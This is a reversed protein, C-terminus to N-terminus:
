ISIALIASKGKQKSSDMEKLLNESDKSIQSVSQKTRDKELQHHELEKNCMLSEFELNRFEEEGLEREKKVSEFGERLNEIENKLKKIKKQLDTSYKEVDDIQQQRELFGISGSQIKGISVTTSSIRVGSSSLREFPAKPWNDATEIQFLNENKLM